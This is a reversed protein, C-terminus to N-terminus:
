CSTNGNRARFIRALADDAASSQAGIDPDANLMAESRQQGAIRRAEDEEAYLAELEESSNVFSATIASISQESVTPLMAGQALLVAARELVESNFEGSHLAARVRMVPKSADQGGHATKVCLRVPVSDAEAPNIKNTSTKPRSFRPLQQEAGDMTILMTNKPACNPVGPPPTISRGTKFLQRGLSRMAGVAAKDSVQATNEPYSYRPRSNKSKRKKVGAQSASAEAAAKGDSVKSAM